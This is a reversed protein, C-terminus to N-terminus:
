EGEKELLYLGGGLKTLMEELGPRNWHGGDGFPHAVWEQRLAHELVQIAVRKTSLPADQELIYEMHGHVTRVFYPWIRYQACIGWRCLMSAPMDWPWEDDGVYVGPELRAHVRIADAACYYVRLDGPNDRLMMMALYEPQRSHWENETTAPPLGYDHNDM